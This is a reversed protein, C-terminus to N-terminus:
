TDTGAPTAQPPRDQKLADRAREHARKQRVLFAHLFEAALGHLMLRHAAGLTSSPVIPHKNNVLGLYRHDNLLTTAYLAITEDLQLSNCARWFDSDTLLLQYMPTYIEIASELDIRNIWGCPMDEIPFDGDTICGFDLEGKPQLELGQENLQRNIEIIFNFINLDHQLFVNKTLDHLTQPRLGVFEMRVGKANAAIFQLLETGIHFHRMILYNAYPSVFWKLGWHISHHLLRTSTLFRPMVTKLLKFACITLRCFPRVVPLFWQRSTSSVDILFNAKAVAHLPVSTDLYLALRPNPDLPNHKIRNLKETADTPPM